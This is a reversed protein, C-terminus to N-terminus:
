WDDPVSTMLSDSRYVAQASATVASIGFLQRKEKLLTKYGDLARKLDIQLWDAKFDPESSLKAIISQIMTIVAQKYGGSEDILFTIEEDSFIPVTLDTDGLHFRVRDIDRASGPDYTYSSM